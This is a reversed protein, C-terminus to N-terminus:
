DDDSEQQEIRRMWADFDLQCRLTEYASRKMVVTRDDLWNWARTMYQDPVVRVGISNVPPLWGLLANM